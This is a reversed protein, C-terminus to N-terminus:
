GARAVPSGAGGVEVREGQRGRNNGRSDLPLALITPSPLLSIVKHLLVENQDDLLTHIEKQTSVAIFLM